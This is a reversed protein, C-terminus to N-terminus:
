TLCYRWNDARSRRFKGAVALVNISTACKSKMKAGCVKVRCYKDHDYSIVDIERIPAEEGAEDGLWTFPYDTWAKM